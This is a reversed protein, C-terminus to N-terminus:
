YIIWSRWNDPDVLVDGIISLCCLIIHEPMSDDFRDRILENPYVVASAYIYADTENTCVGWDHVVM